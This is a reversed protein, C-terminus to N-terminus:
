TEGRVCLLWVVSIIEAVRSGPRPV